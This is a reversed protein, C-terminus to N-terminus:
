TATDADATIWVVVDGPVVGPKAPAFQQGPAHAALGRRDVRQSDGAPILTASPRAGDLNRRHGVQDDFAYASPSALECVQEVCEHPHLRIIRLSFAAADGAIHCGPDVAIPYPRGQEPVGPHLFQREQIVLLGPFSCRDDDGSRSVSGSRALCSM